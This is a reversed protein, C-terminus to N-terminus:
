AKREPLAAATQPVRQAVRVSPSALIRL